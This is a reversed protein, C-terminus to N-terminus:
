NFLVKEISDDHSVFIGCVKKLNYNNAMSITVSTVDRMILLCIGVDSSDECRVGSFCQSLLYDEM